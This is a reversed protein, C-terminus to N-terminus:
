RVITAHSCSQILELMLTKARFFMEMKMYDFILVMLALLHILMMFKVTFNIGEKTTNSELNDM